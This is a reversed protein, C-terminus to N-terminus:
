ARNRRLRRPRSPACRGAAAGRASLARAGDPRQRSPAAARRWAGDPIAASARGAGGRRPGAARRLWAAGLRRRGIDLRRRLGQGRRGLGLGLGLWLLRLGLRLRLGRGPRAGGLLAAAAAEGGIVVATRRGCGAAIRPTRGPQDIRHRHADRHEPGHEDDAIPREPSTKLPPNESAVGPVSLKTRRRNRGIPKKQAIAVM